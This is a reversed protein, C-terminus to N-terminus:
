ILRDQKTVLCWTLTSTQVEKQGPQMGDDLFTETVWGESPGLSIFESFRIKSNTKVGQISPQVRNCLYSIVKYYVSVYKHVGYNLVEHKESLFFAWPATISAVFDQLENHLIIVNCTACHITRTNGSRACCIKKTESHLYLKYNTYILQAFYHPSVLLM